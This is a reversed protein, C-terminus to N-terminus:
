GPIPPPYVLSYYYTIDFLSATGRPESVHFGHSLATTNLGLITHVQALYPGGFGTKPASIVRNSTAVKSDPEEYVAIEDEEKYYNPDSYEPGLIGYSYEGFEMEKPASKAKGNGLSTETSAGVASYYHPSHTTDDYLQYSGSDITSYIGADFPSLVNLPKAAKSPKPPKKPKAPKPKKRFHTGTSPLLM